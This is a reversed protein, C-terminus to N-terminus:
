QTLFIQGRIEGGPYTATHINYYWLGNVFDTEQADTLTVTGSFTGSTTAPFSTFPVIVSASVGPDAPGHFHGNTANGTLGTWTITYTLLNKDKDYTGTITGTATSPNTPAEQKASANGRINYIPNNVTVTTTTDKKCSSFMVFLLGAAAIKRFASLM